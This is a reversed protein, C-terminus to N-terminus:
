KKKEKMMKSLMCAVNGLYTSQTNSKTFKAKTKQRKLLMQSSNKATLSKCTCLDSTLTLDMTHNFAKRRTLILDQGIM